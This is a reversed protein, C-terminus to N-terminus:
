FSNSRKKPHSISPEDYKPQPSVSATLREFHPILNEQSDIPDIVIQSLTNQSQLLRLIGYLEYEEALQIPTKGEPNPFNLDAKYDILLSIIEYIPSPTHTILQGFLFRGYLAHHIPANGTIDILNPDAGNELLTRVRDAQWFACSSGLPTFGIFDARNPDGGMSASVAVLGTSGFSNGVNLMHSWFGTWTHKIRSWLGESSDAENPENTFM